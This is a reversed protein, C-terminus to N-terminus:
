DSVPEPLMHFTSVETAEIRENFSQSKNDNELMLVAFKELEDIVSKFSYGLSSLKYETHLKRDSHKEQIIVGCDRLSKLRQNLVKSSIGPLAKYLHCPRKPGDLLEKILQITWKNFMKQVVLEDIDIQSVKNVESSLYM